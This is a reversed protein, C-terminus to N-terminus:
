LILQRCFTIWVTSKNTEVFRQQVGYISGRINRQARRWIVQSRHNWTLTSIGPIQEHSQFTPSANWFGVPMEFGHLGSPTIFPTKKGDIPKVEVQLCGSTPDLSSFWKAGSLADFTAESCPLQMSYKRTLENLRRHDVCPRLSCDCKTVLFIASSCSSSSPRIAKELVDRIMYDLKPAFHIPLWWAHKKNTQQWWQRNWAPKLPMIERAGSHSDFTYFYIQKLEAPIKAWSGTSCGSHCHIRPSKQAATTTKKVKSRAQTTLFSLRWNSITIMGECKTLFDMRLVVDWSFKNCVFSFNGVGLDQTEIKLSARVRAAMESGNAANVQSTTESLAYNNFILCDHALSCSASTDM